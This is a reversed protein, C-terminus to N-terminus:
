FHQHHTTTQKNKSIVQQLQSPHGSLGLASVAPPASGLCCSHASVGSWWPKHRQPSCRQREPHETYMHLDQQQTSTEDNFTNTTFTKNNFIDTTFDTLIFPFGKKWATRCISRFYDWFLPPRQDPTQKVHCKLPFLKVFHPRLLHTSKGWPPRETKTGTHKIFHLSASWSSCGFVDGKVQAMLGLTKAKTPKLHRNYENTLKHPKSM